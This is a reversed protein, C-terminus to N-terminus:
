LVNSIKDDFLASIWGLIHRQTFTDSFRIAFIGYKHINKKVKKNNLRNKAIYTKQFQNSKIDTLISWYRIAKQVNLGEHIWISGRYREIPTTTFELFWKM